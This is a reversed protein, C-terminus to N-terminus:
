HRRRKLWDTRRRDEDSGVLLGFSEKESLLLVIDALQHFESVCDQKGLFLVHDEVNLDRAKSMDCLEPGDGLLLKSPISQHVKAFTEIITDIRKVRRFNSVHILVSEEPLIGYM